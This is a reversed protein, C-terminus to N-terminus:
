LTHIAPTKILDNKKSQSGLAYSICLIQSELTQKNIAGTMLHLISLSWAEYPENIASTMFLLISFIWGKPENGADTIFELINLIRAKYSTSM